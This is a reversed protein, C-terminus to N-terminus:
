DLAEFSSIIERLLGTEEVDTDTGAANGGSATEAGAADDAFVGYPSAQEDSGTIIYLDEGPRAYTLEERALSELYGAEMLKGLQAQLDAKQQELTALGTAAEQLRERADVYGRLPGYNALAAVALVVILSVM